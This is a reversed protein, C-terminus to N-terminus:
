YRDAQCCCRKVSFV